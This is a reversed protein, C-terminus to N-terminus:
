RQLNPNLSDPRTHQPVASAKPTLKISISIGLSKLRDGVDDIKLWTGNLEHLGFTFIKKMRCIISKM